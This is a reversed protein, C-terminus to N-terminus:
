SLLIVQAIMTPIDVGDITVRGTPPWCDFVLKGNSGHWMHVWFPVHPLDYGGFTQRSAADYIPPERMQMLAGEAVTINRHLIWM